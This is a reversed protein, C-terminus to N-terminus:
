FQLRAVFQASRPLQRNTLLGYSASNIQNGGSVFQQDAANNTVNFV